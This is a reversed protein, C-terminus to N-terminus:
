LEGLELHQELHSLLHVNLRGGANADLQGCLSGTAPGLTSALAGLEAEAGDLQHFEEVQEIARPPLVNQLEDMEVEPTLDGVDAVHLRPELLDSAVVGLKPVHAEVHAM